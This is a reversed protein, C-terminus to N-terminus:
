KLCLRMFARDAWDLGDASQRRAEIQMTRNWASPALAFYGLRTYWPGSWPIDLQAALVVSHDGRQRADAHAQQMLATGIGRRGYAVAVSIQGVCYEGELRSVYIWGVPEQEPVAVWLRGDAIAQLAVAPPITTGDCMDPHPSQLYRTDAEIGIAQLLAIEDPRAIRIQM